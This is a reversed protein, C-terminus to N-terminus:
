IELYCSIPDQKLLSLVYSLDAYMEDVNGLFSLKAPSLINEQRTFFTYLRAMESLIAIQEFPYNYNRQQVFVIRSIKPNEILSEVAGSMVAPNEALSPVFAAGLYNVYLVDEGHKRETETAYLPAGEKFIM